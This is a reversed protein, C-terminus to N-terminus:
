NSTAVSKLCVLCIPDNGLYLLRHYLVFDKCGSSTFFFYQLCNEGPGCFVKYTKVRLSSKGTSLAALKRYVCHMGPM